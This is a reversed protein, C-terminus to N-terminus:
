CTWSEVISVGLMSLSEESAGVIHMSKSYFLIFHHNSILQQMAGVFGKSSQRMAMALPFIHGLRHKGFVVRTCDMM